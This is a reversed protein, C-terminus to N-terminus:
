KVTLSRECAILLERLIENYNEYVRFGSAYAHGGGGFYGAIDAAIPSNTRVKGTLKGDPYTKIAVCIEVGEVMRMEDIVLVSPNYKDSYKKIEDWPIHIVALKGELFYEIRRILEGKYELIEPAKKAFERRDDEIKSTNAGLESLITANKFTNTTTNQTSFGLTDSLIAGMLLQAANQNIDWSNELALKLVIEAASSTDELIFEHPFQLDNEASFHHDIVLVPTKELMNLYLKNEVVKSLLTNSATDVIIFLDFKEIIDTLVRDWGRFYRLYKPIEVPCFLSVQKGLDSLIEELGLASGLSDGDPNEAQIICIKQAGDIIKKANKYM